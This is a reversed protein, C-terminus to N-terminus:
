IPWSYNHKMIRLCIAVVGKILTTVEDTLKGSKLVDLEARHKSRMFDLFSTEFDKIKTTPIKTLFELQDM